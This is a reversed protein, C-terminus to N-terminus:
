SRCHYRSRLCRSKARMVRINELFSPWTSRVSVGVGDERRGVSLVMVILKDDGDTFLLFFPSSQLGGQFDVGKGTLWHRLWVPQKCRQPRM